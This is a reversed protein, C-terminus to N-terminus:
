AGIVDAKRTGNEANNCAPIDPLNTEGPREQAIATTLRKARKPKITQDPASTQSALLDLLM